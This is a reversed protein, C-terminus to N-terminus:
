GESASNAVLISSWCPTRFATIMMTLLCSVESTGSVASHLWDKARSHDTSTPFNCAMSTPYRRRSRVVHYQAGHGSTTSYRLCCRPERGASWSGIRCALTM